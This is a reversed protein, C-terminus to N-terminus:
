KHGQQHITESIFANVEHLPQKGRGPSNDVIFDFGDYGDLAIESRHQQAEETEAGGRGTVRVVYGGISQIWEVENPFRVDTVVFSSVGKNNLITMWAELTKCWVDKGYVDRGQETGMQQLLHRVDNSKPTDGLVEDFPAGEKVVADVKFHAALSLPTFGNWQVLVHKAIYDKGSRAKGSMGIVDIDRDVLGYFSM